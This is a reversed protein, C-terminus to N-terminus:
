LKRNKKMVETLLVSIMQNLESSGSVFKNANLVRKAKKEDIKDRYAHKSESSHSVASDSTKDLELLLSTRKAIM